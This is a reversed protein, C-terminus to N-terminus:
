LPHRERWLPLRLRKSPARNSCDAPSATRIPWSCWTAIKTGHPSSPTWRSIFATRPRRRTPALARERFRPRLAACLLYILQTSGNGLLIEASNMGHREGLAAKLKEGYPDPYRALESWSRLFAGRASRPPGLPNISASFDLMERSDIGARKAWREVDGGHARDILQAREGAPRFDRARAACHGPM